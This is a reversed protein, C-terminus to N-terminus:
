AASVGQKLSLATFLRDVALSKQEEAARLRAFVEDIAKKGCAFSDSPHEAPNCSMGHIGILHARCRHALAAACKGIKEGKPTDDLFVAISKWGSLLEKVTLHISGATPPGAARGPGDITRTPQAALTASQERTPGHSVTQIGALPVGRPSHRGGGDEATDLNRYIGLLKTM